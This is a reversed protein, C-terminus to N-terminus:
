KRYADYDLINNRVNESPFMNNLQIWSRVWSKPDPLRYVVSQAIRDPTYCSHDLCVIFDVSMFILLYWQIYSSAIVWSVLGRM